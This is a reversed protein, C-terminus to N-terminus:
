NLRKFGSHCIVGKLKEDVSKKGTEFESIQYFLQDLIEFYNKLIKRNHKVSVFIANTALYGKKLMEQTIFTKYKLWDNSVISFTSLAPIGNLQININNKKALFKWKKQVELMYCNNGRQPEGAGIDIYTGQNGFLEYAFIDQGAQSYPSTKYIFSKFFKKFEIM